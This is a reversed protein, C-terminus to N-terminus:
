QYNSITPIEAFTPHLRPCPTPDPTKGMKMQDIKEKEESFLVQFSVIFYSIKM